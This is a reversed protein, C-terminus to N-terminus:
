NKESKQARSMEEPVVKLLKSVMNLKSRSRQQLGWMPVKGQSQPRVAPERAMVMLKTKNINVKLGKIEMERKWVFFFNRVAEEESAATIM